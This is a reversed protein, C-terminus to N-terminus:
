PRRDRRLAAHGRKHVRIWADAGENGDGLFPILATPQPHNDSM